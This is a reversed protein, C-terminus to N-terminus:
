KANNQQIKIWIPGFLGSPVLTSEPKVLSPVSYTHYPGASSQAGIMRNMLSNVVTINLENTGERVVDTINCRWPACWLTDPESGNVSIVAVGNIEPLQLMYALSDTQGGIEFAASYTAPGSYYRIGPESSQSWDFLTDVVIPNDRGAFNSDFHLQWPTEIRINGCDSAEDQRLPLREKKGSVVIFGSEDPALCLQVHLRNDSTRRAPLSYRQGTLPNWFEAESYPVRLILSDTFSATGSNCVFYSEADKLSRHSFRLLPKDQQESPSSWSAAGEMDPVLLEPKYSPDRLDSVGVGAAKLRDIHAQAEKTVWATEPIYLMSYSMGDPLVLRGNRASVRHLLADTTCVDFDVGAPFEPLRHSMIKIPVDDGLYVLCDVVPRGHRLMGACRAQYDWFPGSYPWYTNSRNLCYHRGGGTCGPITDPGWPQHSSACVVFENLGMAYALDAIHKLQSLPANYQFDTFAEASAIRHGYLHAASSAEKIDYSGWKQYAWFEGEPKMARGKAQINDSTMSQGAGMAQATFTLHEARCLSDLTGIYNNSCLDAVTRRMDHLFEFTEAPTGVVYGALAPLWPRIDYGRFRKFATDFGQTWNQTSAEHSDMVLGEVPVGMNRITDLMPKFYKSWQFEVAERSLKDCELGKVGHRGHKIHAGTPIQCFRLIRWTGEPVNWLLSNGKWSASDSLDIIEDINVVEDGRYAPTRDPGVYEARLGALGEWGHMHALTQPQIRNLYLPRDPRAAQASDHLSLRYYRASTAEFSVTVQQCTNQGDSYLGPLECVKRWDIGDDSCQFVGINPLPEYGYGLYEGNPKGPYNVRGNLSRGMPAVRYTLGRLTVVGGYDVTVDVPAGDKRVDIRQRSSKPDFLAAADIGKTNCFYRPQTDGAVDTKVPIALLAVDEHWQAEPAPLNIHQLSGDGKVDCETAVIFKMSMEPTIWPGGGVFGNSLHGEWTLGLRHAESASYKVIDWWDESFVESAGAGDGHVQDYYVVGGVGANRFAELDMTVGRRTSETEGHFWWVKTRTENDIHTFEKWAEDKTCADHPPLGDGGHGMCSTLCLMSSLSIAIHFLFSHM